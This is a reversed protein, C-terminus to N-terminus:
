GHESKEKIELPHQARYVCAQWRVYLLYFMIGARKPFRIKHKKKERAECFVLNVNKVGSLKDYVLQDWMYLCPYCPAEHVTYYVEHGREVYLLPRPTMAPM